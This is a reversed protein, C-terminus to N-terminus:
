RRQGALLRDVLPDLKDATRRYKTLSLGGHHEYDLRGVSEEGRLIELQITRTYATFDRNSEAAYRVVYRCGDLAGAGRVQTTVGNRRFADRIAPLLAPVLARPNREVCVRDLRHVDADVPDVQITTCGAALSAIALLPAFARRRRTM